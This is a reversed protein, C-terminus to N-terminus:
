NIQALIDLLIKWFEDVSLVDVSEEPSHPNNITPGIAIVDIDGYKQKIVATELGAHIATVEAKGNLVKKTSLEAIKVLKSDPDPEWSPYRDFSKIDFGAIEAVARHIDILYDLVSESSSRHHMYISVEGNETRISALNTSSEVLGPIRKSMSMVGHPLSMLLRVINQAGNSEFIVAEDTTSLLKLDIKISKEVNEYEKAINRRFLSIDKKLGEVLDSQLVIIASCERPIANHKDGGVIKSLYYTYKKSILYLLRGMLKIANARGKDIDGGSHGGMLGEISIEVTSKKSGDCFNLFKVPVSIKTEIGGASGIYIVGLEESDLNILYKGTIMDDGLEYAGKLGTEEEVTFLFEIKGHKIEPNELIALMIAVGIGNDAGLTTGEAKLLNGELKLRIPDKDFDHVIDSNKECVMDVHSQLICVPKDEFGKYAEKIVVLNGKKDKKYKLGKKEALDIIYEIVKQEKGSCRPIGSIKEFYYWVREPELKEYTKM